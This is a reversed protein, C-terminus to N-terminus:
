AGALRALNHAAALLSLVGVGGLMVAVVQLRDRRAVVVPLAIVAMGVAKTLLMGRFLGWRDIFYGGVPSGEVFPGHAVAVYTTGIDAAVGVLFLVAGLVVRWYM